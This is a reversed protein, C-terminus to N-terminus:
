KKHLEGQSVGAAEVRRGPRPRGDVFTITQVPADGNANFHLTVVKERIFYDYDGAPILEVPIPGLPPGAVFLHDGQQTIHLITNSVAYAGALRDYLAVNTAVASRQIQRWDKWGYEAAISRMLEEILPWGYDGNTLIV